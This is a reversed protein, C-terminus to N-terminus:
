EFYLAGWLHVLKEAKGSKESFVMLDESAFIGEKRERYVYDSDNIFCPKSVPNNKSGFLIKYVAGDINEPTIRNRGAGLYVHNGRWLVVAKKELGTNGTSIRFVDYKKAETNYALGYLSDGAVAFYEERGEFINFMYDTLEVLESKVKGMNDCKKLVNGKCYAIGEGSNIWIPRSLIKNNEMPM